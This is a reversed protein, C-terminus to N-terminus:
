NRAGLGCVWGALDARRGGEEGRLGCLCYTVCTGRRGRVALNCGHSAGIAETPEAEGVEHLSGLSPGAGVTAGREPSTTAAGGALM